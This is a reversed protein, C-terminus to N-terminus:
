HVGLSKLQLDINEYRPPESKLIFSTSSVLGDDSLESINDELQQGFEYHKNDISKQIWELPEVELPSETYARRLSPADEKRALIVHAQVIKVGSHGGHM